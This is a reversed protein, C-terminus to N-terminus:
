GGYLPQDVVITTGLESRLQAVHDLVSRQAVPDFGVTPEDLFLVSPRHLMSQAVELPPIRRFDARSGTGAM